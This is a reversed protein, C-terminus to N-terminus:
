EPDSQRRQKREELSQIALERLQFVLPPGARDPEHSITPRVRRRFALSHFWFLAMHLGLFKEARENIQEFTLERVKDFMFKEWTYFPSIVPEDKHTHHLSFHALEHRKKYFKSLRAFMKAWMELHLEDVEELLMLRDCVALRAEFSLIASFAAHAKKQDPIDSLHAFLTALQIEVLSWNHLAKGVAQLLHDHQPTTSPQDLTLHYGSRLPFPLAAHPSTSASAESAVCAACPCYLLRPNALRRATTLVAATAALPALEVAVVAELEETYAAVAVAV